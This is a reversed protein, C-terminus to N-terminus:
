YKMGIMSCKLKQHKEWGPKFVRLLSIEKKRVRTMPGCIIKHEEPQQRWAEKMVVLKILKRINPLGWRSMIEQLPTTGRRKLM